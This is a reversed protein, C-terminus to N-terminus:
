SLFGARGRLFVSLMCRPPVRVGGGRRGLFLSSTDSSTKLSVSDLGPDLGEVRVGLNPRRSCVCFSLELVLARCASSSLGPTIEASPADPSSHLDRLCLCVESTGVCLSFPFNAFGFGAGGGGGTELALDPFFELFGARSTEEAVLTLPGESWLGGLGLEVSWALPLREWSFALFSGFFQEFTCGGLVEDVDGVPCSGPIPALEATPSGPDFKIGRM